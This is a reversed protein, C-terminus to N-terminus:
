HQRVLKSSAFLSLYVSIIFAAYFVYHIDEEPSFYINVLMTGFYITVVQVLIMCFASVGLRQWKYLRSGKGTFIFLAIIALGVLGPFIM